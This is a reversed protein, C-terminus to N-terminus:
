VNCGHLNPHYKWRASRAQRLVWPHTRNNGPGWSPPRYHLSQMRQHGLDPNVSDLHTISLATSNTQPHSRSFLPSVLCAISPPYIIHCFISLGVGTGRGTVPLATLLLDCHFNSAHWGQKGLAVWDKLSFLLAASLRNVTAM